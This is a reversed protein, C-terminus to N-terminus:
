ITKCEKIKCTICPNNNNFYASNQKITNPMIENQSPYLFYLFPQSYLSQISLELLCKNQLM